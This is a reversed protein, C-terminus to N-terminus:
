SMGSLISREEERTLGARRPRGLGRRVEDVLVDQLTQTLPRRNLGAEVARLDSHTGFGAAEPGPIWLPLSRPGAWPAVQNALLTEDSAAAVTGTFGATSAAQSLLDGLAIQEGVVNVEGSREAAAAAVIWAALDRVDITQTANDHAGPVLVPGAQTRAFAALWYGFRDSPDGPGGILGPRVILAREGLANRVYRECASKAEGYEEVTATAGDWPECTPASEDQGPTVADRYVSVSSIYTWHAAREGLATTAAQVQGPQWTVDLVDDWDQGMLGAHAKPRQRDAIVLRAGPPVAGSEGRALCTVTAGSALAHRAVEAGLWGTGGLILVNRV